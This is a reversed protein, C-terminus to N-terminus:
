GSKGSRNCSQSFRVLWGVFYGTSAGSVVTDWGLYSDRMNPQLAALVNLAYHAGFIVFVRLLPQISGPLWVLKQDRDFRLAPHSLLGLACGIVAGACWRAERRVTLRVAKSV